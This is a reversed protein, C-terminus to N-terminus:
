QFLYGLNVNVVWPEPGVQSQINLLRGFHLGFVLGGIIFDAGLVGALSRRPWAESFSDFAAGFDLGALGYVSSFLPTQIFIDLPLRLQLNTVYFWNGLLRSDGSRFGELNGYNSLFFPPAFRGGTSGGLAVRWFIHTRGILRFRIQMDTDARLYSFKRVPLYGVEGELLLSLGDIPGAFAHMRMTDLGILASAVLQPEVGANLRQWESNLDGNYDTFDFREIGQIQLSAEVRRFRDLPYAVLGAVGFERLLYYNETDKFTRDRLPEFTHFIGMGWELRRTQNLYFLSGETLTLSGHIALNVSFLHDRMLDTIVLGAAGFSSSGVGGGGALEMRWNGSDIPEYSITDPPISLRPYDIYHTPTATLTPHSTDEPENLLVNKSIRYLQQTGGQYAITLLTDNTSAAASTITASTDTLRKCAGNKLLWLDPKGSRHSLFVIGGLGVFPNRDDQHSFTLRNSTQTKLDFEYLNFAHNETQDSSFLIRNNDWFLDNKSWISNTLRKIQYSKHGRLPVLYLDRFGDAAVGAFAVARGDPSLAPDYIELVDGVELVQQKKLSLEIHLKGQNLSERSRVSFIHLRDSKGNKAVYVLTHSRLTFVRRDGPHLSEIGPRQDRAVLIRSDPDRIDQLWISSLGTEREVTRYLFLTGDDSVCLSDPEKETSSYLDFDSLKQKSKLWENFYRKKLWNEYKQQIKYAPENLTKSVYEEFNRPQSVPESFSESSQRYKSFSDFAFQDMTLESALQYINELIEVIKPRGYVEALFTLRAQGLKYVGLYGGAQNDFFAPLAYGQLPDPNVILDRVLSDSEPDMGDYAGWEALGEIFWLPIAALPPSVGKGQCVDRIKQLTVQHVMEHTAVHTFHRLDGFFPVAMRLDITDTVGLTGESVAFTNTALFEPYSAYLIFPIPTRPLYHFTDTLREYAQQIVSAAYSAAIQERDYYYLRIKGGGRNSSFEFIRWDQQWYHVLNQGPRSPTISVDEWESPPSIGLSTAWPLRNPHLLSSESSLLTRNTWGFDSFMPRLTPKSLSTYAHAPITILCGLLAVIFLLLNRTM